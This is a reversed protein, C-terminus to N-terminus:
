DELDKLDDLLDDPIPEVDAQASAKQKESKTQEQSKSKKSKQQKSSGELQELSKEGPNMYKDLEVDDATLVLEEHTIPVSQQPRESDSDVDL